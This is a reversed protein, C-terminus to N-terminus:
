RIVVVRLAAPPKQRSQNKYYEVTVWRGLELSPPAATESAIKTKPTIQFTFDLLRERSRVVMYGQDRDFKVIQGRWEEVEVAEEGLGVLGASCAVAGVLVSALLLSMGPKVRADYCPFPYRGLSGEHPPEMSRAVGLIM